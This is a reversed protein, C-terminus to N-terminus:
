LNPKEIKEPEQKQFQIFDNLLLSFDAIFEPDCKQKKAEELYKVLTPVSCIDKGSIVMFPIEEEICKNLLRRQDKM